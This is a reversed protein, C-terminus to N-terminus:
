RLDDRGKRAGRSLDQPEAIEVGSAALETKLAELKAEVAEGTLADFSRILQGTAPNISQIPM